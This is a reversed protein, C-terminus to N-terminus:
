FWLQVVFLQFQFHLSAFYRRTSVIQWVVVSDDLWNAYGCMPRCGSLSRFHKFELTTISNYVFYTGV